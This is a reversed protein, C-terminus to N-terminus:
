SRRILYGDPNSTHLLKHNYGQDVEFHNNKALFAKLATKPNNGPGWPRQRHVQSPIDEIITDAVILYQQTSVMPAYLVLEQLVHEHTHNSDLIVMVSDDTKILSKIQQIMASDVSSGQLLQIRPYFPHAEISKRNHERIDIDIGIVRGRGLLQMM